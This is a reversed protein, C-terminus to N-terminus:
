CNVFKGNISILQSLVSYKRLGSLLILLKFSLVSYIRLGKRDISLSLSLLTVYTDISLFFILSSFNFYFFHTGKLAIFVHM